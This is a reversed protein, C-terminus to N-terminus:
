GGRVASRDPERRVGADVVPPPVVLVPCEAGLALETVTSRLWPRRDAPRAELVLLGAHGAARLLAPLARDDVVDAHVAVEDSDWRRALDEVQGAVDGPGSRPRLAHVIRLDTGRRRACEHAVRVLEIDGEPREIGVVVPGTRDATDAHVVAIPVGVTHLVTLVAPDAPGDGIRQHGIAGLVLLDAESAAGTLVRVPSDHVLAAEVAVGPATARAIGAARTLVWRAHRRWAPVDGTDYAAAHVIRLGCRRASAERAAWRTVAVSGPSGTVGVVVPRGSM